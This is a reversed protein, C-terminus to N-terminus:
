PEARGNLWREITDLPWHWGAAYLAAAFAVAAFTVMGKTGESM